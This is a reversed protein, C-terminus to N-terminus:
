KGEKIIEPYFIFSKGTLKDIKVVQVRYANKYTKYEYRFFLNYVTILFIIVCILIVTKRTFFKKFESSFKSNKQNNASVQENDTDYFEQKTKEIKKPVNSSDRSRIFLIIFEYLAVPYCIPILDLPVLLYFFYLWKKDGFIDRSRKIVNTTKLYLIVLFCIFISSAIWGSNQNIDRSIGPILLAPAIFGVTITFAAVYFYDLRKIRGKPSFLNQPLWWKYKEFESGKNKHKCYPCEDGSFYRFCEPCSKEM